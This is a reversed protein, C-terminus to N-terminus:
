KAFRVAAVGNRRMPWASSIPGTTANRAEGAALKMVPWTITTSPPTVIAYPVNGWATCSLRRERHQFHAHHVPPGTMSWSGVLQQVAALSAKPAALSM